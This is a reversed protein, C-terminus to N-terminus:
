TQLKCKQETFLIIGNARENTLENKEERRKRSHNLTKRHEKKRTKSRRNKKDIERTWFHKMKM